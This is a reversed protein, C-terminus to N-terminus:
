ILKFEVKSFCFNLTNYLIHGGRIKTLNYDKDVEKAVSEPHGDVLENSTEESVVLCLYMVQGWIPDHKQRHENRITSVERPDFGMPCQEIMAEINKRLRVSLDGAVKPDLCDVFRWEKV